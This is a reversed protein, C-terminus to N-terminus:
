KYSLIHAESFVAKDIYLGAITEIFANNPLTAKRSLIIAFAVFWFAVKKLISLLAFQRVM